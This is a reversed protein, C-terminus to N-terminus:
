VMVLAEGVCVDVDGVVVSGDIGGRMVVGVGWGVCVGAGDVVVSGGMGGRVVVEVGSGGLGCHGPSAQSPCDGKLAASQLVPCVSTVGTTSMLTLSPVGM